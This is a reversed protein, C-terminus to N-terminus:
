SCTSTGPASSEDQASRRPADDDWVDIDAWAVDHDECWRRVVAAARVAAPRGGHVVIGIRHLTGDEDSM